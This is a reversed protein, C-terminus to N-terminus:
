PGCQSSCAELLSATFQYCNNSITGYAGPNATALRTAACNDFCSTSGLLNCSASYYDGDAPGTMRGNSYGSCVPFTQGTVATNEICVYSHGPGGLAYILQGSSVNLPRTCAYTNKQVGLRNALSAIANSPNEASRFARPLWYIQGRGATVSAIDRDADIFGYSVANSGAFIISRGSVTWVFEMTQGNQNAITSLYGDEASYSYSLSKSEDHSHVLRGLHDYEEIRGTRTKLTLMRVDGRPDLALEMKHRALSFKAFGAQSKASITMIKRSGDARYLRVTLNTPSTWSYTVWRDHNTLWGEGLGSAGERKTSALSSDWSRRLSLEPASDMTFDVISFRSTSVARKNHAGGGAVAGEDLCETPETWPDEDELWDDYEYDNDDDGFYICTWGGHECNWSSETKLRERPPDVRLIVDDRPRWFGYPQADIITPTIVDTAPAQLPPAANAMGVAFAIIVVGSSVFNRFQFKMASEGTAGHHINIISM